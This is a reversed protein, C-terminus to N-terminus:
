NTASKIWERLNTKLFYLQRGRKFHPIKKQAALAYITPIAKGIIKSAEHIDIFPEDIESQNNSIFSKILESQKEINAILQAVMSPLQEFSLNPNTLM